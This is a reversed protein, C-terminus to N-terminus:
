RGAGRRPGEPCRYGVIEDVGGALAFRARFGPYASSEVLTVLFSDSILDADVGGVLEPADAYLREFQAYARDRSEFRADRVSPDSRLAADLDGRQQDTIDTRLIIVAGTPDGAAPFTCAPDMMMIMAVPWPMPRTPDGASRPAPGGAPHRTPDGAQHPTAALAMAGAVVVAVGAAAAAALGRRRRLRRGLRRAERAMDEAPATPEGDFAREFLLRVGEDM